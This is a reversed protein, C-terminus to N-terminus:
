GGPSVQASPSPSPPQSAAPTPTPEKTTTPTVSPEPLTTSTPPPSAPTSRTKTPSPTSTPTSSTTASGSPAPIDADAFATPEVGRLAVRMFRKWMEAPCSGGFRAQCGTPSNASRLSTRRDAFGNWVVTALDPTYGAYWADVNEDTTGTKGAQPRGIAARTGTGNSVVGQLVENVTDAVNKEIARTERSEAEYLVKSGRNVREVLYPERYEGRAAFTAFMSTLELPTVEKVGLALGVVPDLDSKVGLAHAMREVKGAGVDDILQAYVTNVSNWTAERISLSGYNRGDYNSIPKPYGRIQVKAPAPFRQNVSMGDEIAAALVAPKFTSGPQRSAQTAINLQRVGFERAGVMSRVAGTAPDIAVLAVEPDEERPWVDKVAAEAARQMEVDLTARVTIKGGYLTRSGIEDELFRRVDELYHPATGGAVRNRARIKTAKAKEGKEETIHDDRVMFNLVADRRGKAAEADRVPDFREPAQIIGALLASEPLTLSKAQKGFYARSAAEVGYAGRGFYITNLYLELIDRKSRQRELKLALVAEKTKRFVSRENGVFANKVYQQTITSGGQRIGRGILNTVAARVISTLRVGPHQYFRRDETAIVAQQLHEPMSKLPISVRDAEAHLRGVLKGNVDVVRASQARSIDNPEPVKAFAYLTGIYGFLM